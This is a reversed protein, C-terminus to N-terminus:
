KLEPAGPEISASVAEAPQVVIDLVASVPRVGEGLDADATVSVQAEGVPGVTTAVASVGDESAVVAIVAPNSSAWVPTGDVRAPNGAKTTFRVSLSVKQEDTLILMRRVEKRNTLLKEL